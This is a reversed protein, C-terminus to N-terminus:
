PFPLALCCLLIIEPLSGINLYSNSLYKNLIYGKGCMTSLALFAVTFFLLFYGNDCKVGHNALYIYMNLTHLFHLLM